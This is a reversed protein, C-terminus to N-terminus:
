RGTCGLVVRYQGAIGARCYLVADFYLMVSFYYLVTCYFVTCCLVTCTVVCESFLITIQQFPEAYARGTRLLPVVERPLMASVLLAHQQQSLLMCFLMGACVPRLANMHSPRWLQPASHLPHAAPMPLFSRDLHMPCCIICLLSSPAASVVHCHPFMGHWM